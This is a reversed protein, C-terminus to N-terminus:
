EGGITWFPEIQFFMCIGGASGRQKGLSENFAVTKKDPFIRALPLPKLIQGRDALMRVSQHDATAVLERVDVRLDNESGGM